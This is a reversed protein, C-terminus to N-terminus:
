PMRPQQTEPFYALGPRPLLRSLAALGAERAISKCTAVVAPGLEVMRERTLRFSPGVVAIAFLPYHDADLIPAALANIDPEFEQESMAFGQERAARLGRRLEPVSVVTNATHKTLGAGLIKTVQDEPLYALFAKGSATCYAPLRQGVAAAIKVRQHSDIVQLYIVDSGDLAALDVTEGSEAALRQLYPEAWRQLDM